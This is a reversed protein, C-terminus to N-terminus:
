SDNSHTSACGRGPSGPLATEFFRRILETQRHTGTKELISDAHTRATTGSIKLRAAASPLGNGRIIEELVRSEAPTLGFKAGFRAVQARLDATPDLVFLAAAPREIEFISATRSAALPFIHAIL